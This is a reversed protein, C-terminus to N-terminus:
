DLETQIEIRGSSLTKHVPCKNAIELMRQRQEETLSEGVLTIVRDFVDVVAGAERTDKRHMLSVSIDDLPWQKRNAYMRVTMSTCSGLAALLMEYPNPGYDDGGVAKSEDAFWQHQETYITRTFRQNHEDVIVQGKLLPLDKHISENRESM